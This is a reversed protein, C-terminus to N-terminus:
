RPQCHVEYTLVYAPMVWEPNQAKHQDPSTILSSSSLPRNRLRIYMGYGRGRSVFGQIRYLEAPQQRTLGLPRVRRPGPLLASCEKFGPIHQFEFV